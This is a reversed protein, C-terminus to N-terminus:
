LIPSRTNRGAKTPTDFPPCFCAGLAGDAFSLEEQTARRENM